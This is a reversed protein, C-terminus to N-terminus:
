ENFQFYYLTHQRCYKIQWFLKKGFIGVIGNLKKFDIKNGEGYNFLNDWDLTDLKWNINRQIEEQSVTMSNYKKNLKYIRELLKDSPQYDKLYEEILEEQVAINRLNDPALADSIDEVNGRQGIARNLFTIREPKFRHQAAEVAKKMTHLPLNNNSVLRLRAGVPVTVKAPIRGKPTLELTVFPKPNSLIIHRVAFKDRDKIDWLLYGKDDTEGFNQQITSGCYRIRGEKDLAQNTKHIDGLFAFDHGEFISLDDEGNEMVWGLDTECNSIAGHYVAVNIRDTSSPITWNDRDFISLVNLSFEKDLCVEGSEKLLYLNPLNLAKVIPTIADQRSSNKLNGDHNGLIIYTPAIASLGTLFESCLQVYEPSIQTKSHAIDGCHVIYDVKEERLSEFLKDFIKRYEYHYKLNKIHTDAIHAFKM